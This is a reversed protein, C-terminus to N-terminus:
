HAGNRTLIRPGDETIAVTDEVHVAWSRDRTVVTWDDGLTETEHTGLTLMPEIALVMGIQLREGRGPTGWNPVQPEEHLSRGIAHGTFDRILGYGKEEARQQVAYGIDGLRNGPIMQQIAADLAHQADEILALVKLDVQGVPITRAMDAYYGEYSLGCDVSIIDGEKLKRKRSPIGHVIEENISACITGGFPIGRRPSPVVPFAALANRSRIGEAAIENLDATTVGTEVAQVVETMVEVLLRCAHSIRDVEAPTKLSRM